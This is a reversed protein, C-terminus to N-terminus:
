DDNEELYEIIECAPLPAEREVIGRSHKFRNNMGSM